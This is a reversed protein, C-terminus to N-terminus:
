RNKSKLFIWRIIIILQSFCLIIESFYINTIVSTNDIFIKHIILSHYPNEVSHSAFALSQDFINVGSNNEKMLFETVTHQYFSARNVAMKQLTNHIINTHICWVQMESQLFCTHSDGM